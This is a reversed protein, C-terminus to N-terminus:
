LLAPPCCFTQGVKAKRRLMQSLLADDDASRGPCLM